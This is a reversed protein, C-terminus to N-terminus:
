PWMIVEREEPTLKALTAERFRKREAAEREKRQRTAERHRDWWEALDRPVSLTPTGNYQRYRGENEDLLDCLWRCVQEYERPLSARTRVKPKSM